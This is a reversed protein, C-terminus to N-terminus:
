LMQCCYPISPKVLEPTMVHVCNTEIDISTGLKVAALSQDNRTSLVPMLTKVM